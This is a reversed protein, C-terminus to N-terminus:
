LKWADGSGMGTVSAITGTEATATAASETTVGATATVAGVYGM